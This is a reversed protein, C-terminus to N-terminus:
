SLVGHQSIRLTQSDNTREGQSVDGFVTMAKDVDTVSPPEALMWFEVEKNVPQDKDSKSSQSDTMESMEAIKFDVTLLKRGPEFIQHLPPKDFKHPNRQNHQGNHQCHFPKRIVKEMNGEVKGLSLLDYPLLGNPNESAQDEPITQCFSNVKMHGEVRCLENKGLAERYSMSFENGWGSLQRNQNRILGEHYKLKDKALLLEEKLIKNEGDLKEQKQKLVSNKYQLNNSLFQFRKVGRVYNEEAKGM